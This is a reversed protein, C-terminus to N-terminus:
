LTSINLLLKIVIERTSQRYSISSRISTPPITAIMNCRLEEDIDFRIRKFRGFQKYLQFYNKGMWATVILELLQHLLALNVILLSLDTILIHNGPEQVSDPITFIDELETRVAFLLHRM